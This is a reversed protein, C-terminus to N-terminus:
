RQRLLNLEDRLEIVMQRLEEIDKQQQKTQDQLEVIMVQQEQTANLLGWFVADQTFNLYGDKDKSISHPFLPAIEQAVIGVYEKRSPTVEPKYEYRHTKVAMIEKLGARYPGKVNKKRGDSIIGWSTNTTKYADGVVFLNRSVQLDSQNSSNGIFISRPNYVPGPIIDSVQLSGIINTAGNLLTSGAVAFSGSVSTNRLVTPGTQVRFTGEVTASEQVYLSNNFTGNGDFRFMGVGSTGVIPDYQLVNGISIYGDHNDPTSVNNGIIINNNSSTGGGAISGIVVNGNGNFTQPPIQDAARFGILVNDTGTTLSGGANEGVLVNRTGSTMRQGAGPGIALNSNGTSVIGSDNGIFLNKTGSVLSSGANSGILTNNSGTTVARGAAQGIAINSVGSNTINDLAEFGLTTNRPNAGTDNESAMGDISVCVDEPGDGAPPNDILEGGFISCMMSTSVTTASTECGTILYNGPTSSTALVQSQVKIVINKGGFTKDKAHKDFHFFITIFGVSGGTPLTGTFGGTSAESNRIELGRYTWKYPTGNDVESGVSLFTVPVGTSGLIQFNGAPASSYRTGSVLSESFAKNVFNLECVDKVNQFRMLQQQLTLKNMGAEASKQGKMGQSTIQSGVLALGGLAAAVIAVEVLSMGIANKILSSKM